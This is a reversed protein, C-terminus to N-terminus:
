ELVWSSAVYWPELVGRSAGWGSQRAQNPVQVPLFFGTGTHAPAKPLVVLGSPARQPAQVCTAEELVQQAHCCLQYAQQLFQTNQDALAKQAPACEPGDGLEAAMHANWQVEELLETAIQALYFADIILHPPQQPNTSM